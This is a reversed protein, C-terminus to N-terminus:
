APLTELFPTEELGGGALAGLLALVVTSLSVFTVNFAFRTPAPVMSGGSM